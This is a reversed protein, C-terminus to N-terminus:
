SLEKFFQKWELRSYYLLSKTFENLWEKFFLTALNLNTFIILSTFKLKPWGTCKWRTKTRQNMIWLNFGFLIIYNSSINTDRKLWGIRHVMPFKSLIYILILIITVKTRKSWLYFEYKSLCTQYFDQLIWIGFNKVFRSLSFTEFKNWFEGNRKNKFAHSGDTEPFVIQAFNRREVVKEEVNKSDCIFISDYTDIDSNPAHCDEM